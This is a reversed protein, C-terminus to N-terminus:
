SEFDGTLGNDKGRECTWHLAVVISSSIGVLQWVSNVKAIVQGLGNGHIRERVCCLAEWEIPVPLKKGWSWPM